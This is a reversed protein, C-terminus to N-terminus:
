TRGYSSEGSRFWALGGISLAATWIVVVLMSIGPFEGGLVCWRSLSVFGFMPNLDFILEAGPSLDYAAPSFIIGSGYFLLRFFLPLVQTIDRLSNTARAAVLGAGTNFIFQLVVFAPLLVWRISPSEGSVVAVVYIVMIPALTALAETVTSTIPLMARPFPLSMLLGRNNIISNAGATTSRQTFGFIFIGVALFAMFNDVGRDVGLLVGFVLFYIAMQLLPNLLHWLNGLVSNMQRARLESTAVYRVYHRREWVRGLYTRLPPTEHVDWMGEPASGLRRNM